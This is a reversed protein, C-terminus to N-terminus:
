RLILTIHKGARDAGSSRGTGDGAKKPLAPIGNTLRSSDRETSPVPKCYHGAGTATSPSPLPPFCRVQSHYPQPIDWAPRPPVQRETMSDRRVRTPSAQPLPGSLSRRRGPVGRSPTPLLCVERQWPRDIPSRLRSTSALTPICRVMGTRPEPHPLLVPRTATGPKAAQTSTAKARLALTAVTMFPLAALHRPLFPEDGCNPVRQGM